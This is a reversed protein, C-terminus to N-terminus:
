GELWASSVHYWSVAQWDDNTISGWETRSWECEWLADSGSVEGGFWVSGAEDGERGLVLWGVLGSVSLCVSPCLYAPGRLCKYRRWTYLGASLGLWVPWKLGGSLRVMWWGDLPLVKVLRSVIIIPWMTPISTPFPWFSWPVPTVRVPSRRKVCAWARPPPRQRRPVPQHPLLLVWPQVLFDPIFRPLSSLGPFSLSPNTPPHIPPASFPAQFSRSSCRFSSSSSTPSSGCDLARVCRVLVCNSPFQLIALLCALLGLLVANGDLKLTIAGFSTQSFHWSSTVKERM